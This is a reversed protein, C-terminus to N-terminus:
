PITVSIENSEHSEEGKANVARVAYWYTQGSAATTDTFTTGDVPADNLKNPHNGPLPGRYINYKVNPTTSVRWRLVVKRTQPESASIAASNRRLPVVAGTAGFWAVSLIAAALVFIGILLKQRKSVASDRMLLVQCVVLFIVSVALALLILFWSGSLADAVLSPLRHHSRRQLWSDMWINETTFLCIAAALTWTIKLVTDSARAM